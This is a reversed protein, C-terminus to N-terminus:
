IAGEWHDEVKPVFGLADTLSVECFKHQHSANLWQANMQEYLSGNNTSNTKRSLLDRCNRVWAAWRLWRQSWTSM